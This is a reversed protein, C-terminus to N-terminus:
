VGRISVCLNNHKERPTCRAAVPEPHMHEHEPYAEEINARTRTHTSRTRLVELLSLAGVGQTVRQHTGTRNGCAGPPTRNQESICWTPDQETGVHMLHHGTRNGYAGPPTRNQEWICWTPDQETGVHVLHPGTRSTNRSRSHEFLPLLGARRVSV